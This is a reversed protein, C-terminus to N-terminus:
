ENEEQRTGLVWELERIAVLKISESLFTGDTKISSVISALRKEIEDKSKM